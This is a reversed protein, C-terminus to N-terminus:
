PQAPTEYQACQAVLTPSAASTQIAQSTANPNQNTLTVLQRTKCIYFLAPKYALNIEAFLIDQCAQQLQDKEFTSYIKSGREREINVLCHQKAASERDKILGEIAKQVADLGPILMGVALLAAILYPALANFNLM